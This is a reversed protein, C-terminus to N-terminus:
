VTGDGPQNVEKMVLNHIHEHTDYLRARAQDVDDGGVIVHHTYVIGAAGRKRGQFTAIFKM